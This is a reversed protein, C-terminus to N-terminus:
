ILPGGSGSSTSRSAIMASGAPAPPPARWPRLGGLLDECALGSHRYRGCSPSSCCLRSCPMRDVAAVLGAALALEELEVVARRPGRRRRRRCGTPCSGAADDSQRMWVRGSSSTGGHSWGYLRSSGASTVDADTDDARVERVPQGLHHDRLAPQQDWRLRQPLALEVLGVVVPGAAANASPEQHSKRVWSMGDVREGAGVDVADPPVLFGRALVALRQQSSDIPRMMSRSPSM